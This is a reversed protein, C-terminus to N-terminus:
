ITILNNTTVTCVARTEQEASCCVASTYRTNKLKSGMAALGVLIPGMAAGLDGFCDAPHEHKFSASLKRQNRMMSVGYEKAGFSEGNMGSYVKEIPSGSYNQLAQNFAEALGEGRYPEESYRHGREATIAPKRVVGITQGTEVTSLLIFAAGEGPVFGDAIGSALIRDERTLLGLLHLDILSDVGGILVQTANIQSFYRFALEIAQLGGPRGTAILRSSVPDIRGPAAKSLLTLFHGEIVSCPIPEPGALFLSLPSESCSPLIETLAAAALGLM